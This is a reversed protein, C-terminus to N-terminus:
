TNSEVARESGLLESRVQFHKGPIGAEPDRGIGIGAQGICKPFVILVCPLHCSLDPFIQLPSQYINKSAATSSGRCMDLGNSLNGPIVFWPPDSFFFQCVKILESLTSAIMILIISAP